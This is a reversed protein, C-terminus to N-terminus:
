SLLGRVGSSEDRPADAAADGVGAVGPVVCVTVDSARSGAVSIMLIAFKGDVVPNGSGFASGNIASSVSLNISENISLGFCVWFCSTPSFSNTGRTVGVKQYPVLFRRLKRMTFDNPRFCAGFSV